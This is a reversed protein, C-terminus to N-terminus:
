RTERQRRFNRILGCGNQRHLPQFAFNGLDHIVRHIFHVVRCFAANKTMRLHHNTQKGLLVVHSPREADFVPVIAEQKYTM